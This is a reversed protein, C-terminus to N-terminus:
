PAQKEVGKGGTKRGRLDLDPGLTEGGKPIKTGQLEIETALDNERETEIKGREIELHSPIGTKTKKEVEIEKPDAQNTPGEIETELGPDELIHDVGPGDDGKVTVVKRDGEEIALGAEEQEKEDM